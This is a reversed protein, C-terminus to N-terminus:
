TQDGQKAEPAHVSHKGVPLKGTQPADRLEEGPSVDDRMKAHKKRDRRGARISGTIAKSEMITVNADAGFALLENTSDGKVLGTNGWHYPLGIQHVVRRGMKLPKLRETVLVRAEIEGRASAITAWGGNKIGHIDALAPSIECFMEPQLEALWTLWRSMAGSTHHETLRYTTLVYPFEADQYPRALPNDKRPYEFRAPNCQQGYLANKVPSEIPEYHTPIPGDLMGTPAFLWGKGDPQMIFPDDGSITDLQKANGNARYSPDLNLVFDPVDDGVWKKQAEDWWVLKKRESWPKGQPDASARNYLVRRNAPWSFGWKHGYHRPDTAIERRAAKNERDAYIGSYLWCGCATSGDAKLKTYGSVPEGDAVTYGNIEALVHEASPEEIRGEVPYDWALDQLPRDRPDTSEAYLEKLRKGLHYMFHLESRADGPPEIAKHHWQALRQTQTFSVSKEVHTAAPFFFVETGIDETRVEGREHEPSNKWFEAVEVLSFDRVVLWDLEAM